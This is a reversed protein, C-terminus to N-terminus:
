WTSVSRFWALNQNSFHDEGRPAGARMITEVTSPEPPHGDIGAGATHGLEHVVTHAEDTFHNASANADRITELYIASTNIGHLPSAGYDLGPGTLSDDDVHGFQKPGLGDPDADTAAYNEFCGVVLTAWFGPASTLDRSAAIDDMATSGIADDELHRVFRLTGRPNWSSGPDVYQPAIYAEGYASQLLSGGSPLPMTGSAPIADDDTITADVGGAIAALEAPSFSNAPVHLTDDINRYIPVYRGGVGFSPISLVGGEFEDKQAQLVSYLQIV